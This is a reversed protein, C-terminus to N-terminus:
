GASRPRPPAVRSAARPRSEAPPVFRTPAYGELEPALRSWAQRIRTEANRLSSEGREVPTSIRIALIHEPRVLPSRDLAAAQRWWEQWFSGRREFWSYSLLTRAGQRLLMRRV